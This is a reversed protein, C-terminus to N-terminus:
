KGWSGYSAFIKEQTLLDRDLPARMECRQSEKVREKLMGERPEEKVAPAVAAAGEAEGREGRFEEMRSGACCRGNGSEGERRSATAAAGAGAEAGAGLGFTEELEVVAPEGALTGL